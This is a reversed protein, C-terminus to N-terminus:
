SNTVCFICLTDSQAKKTKTMLDLALTREFLGVTQCLNLVNDERSRCQKNAIYVDAM